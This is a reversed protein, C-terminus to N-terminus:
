GSAHQGGTAGTAMTGCTEFLHYGSTRDAQNACGEDGRKLERATRFPHWISTFIAGFLNFFVTM